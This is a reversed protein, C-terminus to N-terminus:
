QRAVSREHKEARPLLGDLDREVRCLFSRVVFETEVPALGGDFGAHAHRPIPIAESKWMEPLGPQHTVQSPSRGVPRVLYFRFFADAATEHCPTVDVASAELHVDRYRLDGIVELKALKAAVQVATARASGNM